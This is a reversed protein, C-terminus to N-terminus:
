PTHIHYFGWDAGETWELFAFGGFTSIKAWVTFGATTKSWETVRVKGDQVFRARVSWAYTTSPSLSTELTHENETLGESKYVVEGVKTAIHLRKPGRSGTSLEKLEWIRLDYTVKEGPFTEWRMTPRLSELPKRAGLLRLDRLGKVRYEVYADFFAGMGPAFTREEFDYRM